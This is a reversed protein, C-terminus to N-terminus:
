QQVPPEAPEHLRREAREVKKIPACVPLVGSRHFMAPEDIHTSEAWNKLVESLLARQYLARRTEKTVAM